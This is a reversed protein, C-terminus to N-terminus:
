AGRAAAALGAGMVTADETPVSFLIGLFRPFLDFFKKFLIEWIGAGDCCHVLICLMGVSM